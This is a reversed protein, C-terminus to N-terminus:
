LAEGKKTMSTGTLLVVSKGIVCYGVFWAYCPCNFSLPTNLSELLKKKHCLNM